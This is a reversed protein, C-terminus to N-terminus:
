KKGFKDRGQEEIKGSRGHLLNYVEEWDKTEILDNRVEEKIQFWGLLRKQLQEFSM